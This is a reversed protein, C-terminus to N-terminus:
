TTPRSSLGSRDPQSFSRPRAGARALPRQRDGRRRDAPGPRRDYAAADIQGLRVPRRDRDARGRPSLLDVGDLARVEAGDGYVKALGRTEVVIDTGIM